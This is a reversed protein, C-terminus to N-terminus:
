SRVARYYRHPVKDPSTREYIATPIFGANRLDDAFDTVVATWLRVDGAGDGPIIDVLIETTRAAFAELYAVRSARGIHTFVSFCCIQDFQMPPLTDPGAVLDAQIGHAACYSVADRSIDVGIYTSCFASLRGTGCGVDLVSGLPISVGLGHFADLLDVGDMVSAAGTMVPVAEIGREWYEATASTRSM